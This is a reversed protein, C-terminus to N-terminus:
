RRSKLTPWLMKTLYGRAWAVVALVFVIGLIQQATAYYPIVYINFLSFAQGVVMYTILIYAYPVFYKPLKGFGTLFTESITESITKGACLALWPVTSLHVYLLVVALMVPVQVAPPAFGALLFLAMWAIAWIFGFGLARKWNHKKKVFTNWIALRSLAYAAANAAALVLLMIFFKLLFGKMRTVEEISIDPISFANAIYFTLVFFLIFGLDIVLAQLYEKGLKLSEVYQQTSLELTKKKAALLAIGALGLVIAQLHMGRLYGVIAIVLALGGIIRPIM